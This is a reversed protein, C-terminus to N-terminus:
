ACVCVSVCVPIVFISACRFAEPLHRAAFSIQLVRFQLLQFFHTLPLYLQLHSLTHPLTHTLTPTATALTHIYKCIHTDPRVGQCM